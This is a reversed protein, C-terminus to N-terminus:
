SFKGVVVGLVFLVIGICIMADTHDRRYRLVEYQAYDRQLGYHKLDAPLAGAELGVDEYQKKM